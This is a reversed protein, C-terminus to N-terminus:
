EEICGFLYSSRADDTQPYMSNLPEASVLKKFESYCESQSNYRISSPFIMKALKEHGYLLGYDFVKIVYGKWKGSKNSLPVRLYYVKIEIKPNEVDLFFEVHGPVISKMGINVVDSYFSKFKKDWRPDIMGSFSGSIFVGGVQRDENGFYYIVLGEVNSDRCTMVFPLSKFYDSKLYVPNSCDTNESKRIAKIENFSLEGSIEKGIYPNFGSFLEAIGKLVQASVDICNSSTINLNMLKQGTWKTCVRDLAEELSLKPPLEQAALNTVILFCFSILVIINLFSKMKHDWYKKIIM